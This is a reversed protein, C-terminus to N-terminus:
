FEGTLTNEEVILTGNRWHALYGKPEWFSNTFKAIFTIKAHYEERATEMPDATITPHPRNLSFERMAVSLEGSFVQKLEELKM